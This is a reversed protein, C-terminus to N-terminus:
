RPRRKMKPVAASSASRAYRVLYFNVAVPRGLSMQEAEWVVGMGGRGVIRHLKFDGLTRGASSQQEVAPLAARLAGDLRQEQEFFHRLGAECGPYVEILEALEVKKGRDRRSFYEALAPKLQM